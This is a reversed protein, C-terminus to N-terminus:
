KCRFVVLTLLFYRPAGGIVSRALMCAHAFSFRPRKVAHFPLGANLIFLGWCFSLRTTLPATKLRTVLEFCQFDSLWSPADNEKGLSHFMRQMMKLNNMLYIFKLHPGLTIQWTLLICVCFAIKPLKPFDVLHHWLKLLNQYTLECCRLNNFMAGRSM